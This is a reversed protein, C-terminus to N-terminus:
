FAELTPDSLIVAGDLGMDERFIEIFESSGNGLFVLSCDKYRERERWVQAAHARCAICAFHRLFIIVAPKSQWVMGLKLAKGDPTEVSCNALRVIDVKPNFIESM